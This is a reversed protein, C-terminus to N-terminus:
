TVTLVSLGIKLAIGNIVPTPSFSNTSFIITLTLSIWSSFLLLYGKDVSIIKLSRYFIRRGRMKKKFLQCYKLIVYLRIRNRAYNL